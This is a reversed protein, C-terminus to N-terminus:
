EADNATDTNIDKITVKALQTNESELSFVHATQLVAQQLSNQIEFKTNAVAHTVVVDVVDSITVESANVSSIGTVLLVAAITKVKNLM